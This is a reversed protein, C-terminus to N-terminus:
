RYLLNKHKKSTYFVPVKFHTSYLKKNKVFKMCEKDKSCIIHCNGIFAIAPLHPDNFSPDVIIKEVIKQREDVKDHNLVRVRNMKSLALIYSHVSHVEKLEKMYKDGGYVMRCQGNHLAYLIDVFENHDSADSIFVSSLACADIIIDKM